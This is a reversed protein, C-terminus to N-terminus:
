ESYILLQVGMIMILGAWALIWRRRKLDSPEAVWLAMARSFSAGIGLSGTVAHHLEIKGNAPHHGHSHAFLLLGGIFGYFVVPAAWAPHKGWGLRWTAESIAAVAALVGYLKHQVMEHDQGFFTAVFGQSGIPWGDHDSWVLLFLAVVGLAGPLVLTTWRPWSCGLAPGLEACGFLFVLLGVFRHNFESYAIGESTGEWGGLSRLAHGHNSGEKDGAASVTGQAAIPQTQVPLVSASPVFLFAVYSFVQAAFKLALVMSVIIM